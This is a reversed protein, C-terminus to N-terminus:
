EGRPSNIKNTYEVDADDIARAIEEQSFVCNCEKGFIEQDEPSSHLKCKERLIKVAKDLDTQRPHKWNSPPTWGNYIPESM